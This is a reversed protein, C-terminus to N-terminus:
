GLLAWVGSVEDWYRGALSQRVAEPTNIAGRVIQAGGVVFGTVPLVVAGAVGARATPPAGLSLGQIHSGACCCRSRVALPLACAGLCSM